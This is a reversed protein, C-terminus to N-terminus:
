EHQLGKISTAIGDLCNLTLLGFSGCGVAYVVWNPLQLIMSYDFYDYADQGGLALRWTLLAAAICMLTDSLLTLWVITRPTASATFIDVVVHGRKLHCYPMFCFISIGLGMEMLEYDGTIATEFFTRGLISAVVMIALGMMILGGIIALQRSTWVLVPNVTLQKKLSVIPTDSM